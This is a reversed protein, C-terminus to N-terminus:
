RKVGEKHCRRCDDGASHSEYERVDHCELCAANSTAARHADSPTLRPSYLSIRGVCGVALGFLVAVSIWKHM